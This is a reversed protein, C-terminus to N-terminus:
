QRIRMAEILLKDYANQEDTTFSSQDINNMEYPDATLDFFRSQGSDFQIFKYQDNRLTYGSRNASAAIIESYCYERDFTGSSKLNSKFSKSDEYNPLSIGALESITCFLDTSNILADERQGKREVGNGSIIMPVHVGGQYLSGKSTSSQYPAQIVQGPTGNDGLYVIITNALERPSLTALLRGIEFDMSEVMALFYPLPNAAISASDSPLAGQSHMSDPPLHFPTHAATYALWCFWPKSQSGIWDIALDTFKTTIYGRYQSSQDNETIQWRNYDSVGGGLLGAYYGIGMQTPRAPEQNSLHWKGIISTAYAGNTQDTIFSHLTKETIPITSNTEADLVGTRYGYRGTLISSRTPSCIAYAWVNDFVIGEAEMKDLNPTNPKVSGVAYASSADLGIDDGIILLINPQVTPLIIAPVPDDKCSSFIFTFSCLVIILQKM